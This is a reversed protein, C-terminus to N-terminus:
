IIQSILYIFMKIIVLMLIRHNKKKCFCYDIFIKHWCKKMNATICERMSKRSKLFMVCNLNLNAETINMTIKKGFMRVCNESILIKDILDIYM